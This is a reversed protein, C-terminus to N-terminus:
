ASRPSVGTSHASDTDRSELFLVVLVATVYLYGITKLHIARSWAQLGSPALESYFGPVLVLALVWATWYIGARERTRAAARAGILFIGGTALISTPSESLYSFLLVYLGNIPVLFRHLRTEQGRRFLILCALGIVAGASLALVHRIDAAVGFHTELFSGVDLMTAERAEDRSMLALWQRHLELDRDFGLFM